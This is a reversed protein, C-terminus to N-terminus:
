RGTIHERGHPTDVWGQHPDRSLVTNIAAPAAMKYLRQLWWIGLGSIEWLASSIQDYGVAPTSLRQHIEPLHPLLDPHERQLYYKLRSGEQLFPSYLMCVLQQESIGATAQTYQDVQHRMRMISESDKYRNRMMEILQPPFDKQTMLGLAYEVYERIGTAYPEEHLHEARLGRMHAMLAPNSCDSETFSFALDDFEFQLFKTLLEWHDGAAYDTDQFISFFVPDKTLAPVFIRRAQAIEQAESSDGYIQSFYHKAVADSLQLFSLFGGSKPVPIGFNRAIQRLWAIYARQERISDGTIVIDVDGISLARGFSSIMSLNCANCFTPRADGGCQHGTVLIDLRNKMMLERPIPPIITASLSWVEEGQILFPQVGLDHYIDLAKYVRTINAMVAPPMGIHRNTAVRIQFTTGHREFILLQLLRVYALM